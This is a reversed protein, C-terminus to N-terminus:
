VTGAPIDLSGSCSGNGITDLRCIPIYAPDHRITALLPQRIKAYHGMRLIKGFLIAGKGNLDPDCVGLPTNPNIQSPHPGGIPWRICLYPAAHTQSCYAKPDAPPTTNDICHGPWTPM